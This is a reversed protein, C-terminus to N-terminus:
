CKGEAETCEEDLILCDCQQCRPKFLEVFHRHCYLNIQRENGGALQKNILEEEQRITENSSNSNSSSSNNNNDDTLNVYEAGFELAARESEQRLKRCDSMTENENKVLQQSCENM